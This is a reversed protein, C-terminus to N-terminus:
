SRIGNEAATSYRREDTDSLKKGTVVIEAVSKDKGTTRTPAPAADDEALARTAGLPLAAVLVVLRVINQHFIVNGM